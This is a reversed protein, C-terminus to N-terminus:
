VKQKKYVRINESLYKEAHMKIYKQIKKSQIGKKFHRVYFNFLFVNMFDSIYIDIDIQRYRYRDIQRDIQRYRYRCKYIHLIYIYITKYLNKYIQENKMKYLKEKNQKNTEKTLM